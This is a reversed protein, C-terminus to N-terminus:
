FTVKIGLMFSFGPNKFQWPMEFDNNTINYLQAFFESAFSDSKSIRQAIYTNLIIGPTYWQRSAKSIGDYFGGNYNLSPVLTFGSATNFSAGVNVIYNPSFPIEVNDQDSNLKNQINSKLYTGNFYWSFTSNIRQFVEIEGGKSTSQTNISQTQSPNQSVVNDVIGDQLITYFGRLNIKLQSSLKFDIGADIGTGKEPKLDPNPLQGNRGIVGVDSLSLTGGISKLGPTSFSSGGNVYIAIKENIPYKAGASWLLKSWSLSKSVPNASNELTIINKISAYRLGCRVILKSFFRYEEQLYVGSQLASSINGYLHYGVLPDSWTNYKASQFDAGVSLAGAKGHLWSISIDLPVILQNVGTNSKLTDVIGFSSEQQSRNYSRIGLHSQLHVKENFSIDYGINLTGYQHSFGRYVRGVNGTHWTEQGFISFKQKENKDIFFTLGGYLKTKQYEPNNKMNLWSGETGYNRYDSTEYTSGVFYNLRDKKNQHFLQGNLTNYSGLSTKFVTKEKEVKDKLILNVTGALPSQSGAFDQSLYNPYLVSAPGRQVEIHDIANLDLSMPDVFADIPVGQLMYTSYKPGIGGYTGWNADNRSLVSVSTGPLKSIAECLNRNGSVNTEIDKTDIVDVKQTVNGELQPSKSPTIVVNRLDELSLNFLEESSNVVKKDQAPLTSFTCCIIAILIFQISKRMLIM